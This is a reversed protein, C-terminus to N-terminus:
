VHYIAEEFDNYRYKEAAHYEKAIYLEAGRADTYINDGCFIVGRWTLSANYGPTYRYTCDEAQMSQIHWNGRDYYPGYITM